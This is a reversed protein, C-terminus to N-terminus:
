RCSPGIVLDKNTESLPLCKCDVPTVAQLWGTNPEQTGAGKGWFTWWSVVGGHLPVRLTPYELLVLLKYSRLSSLKLTLALFCFAVHARRVNVDVKSPVQQSLMTSCQNDFFHGDIIRRSIKPERRALTQDWAHGHRANCPWGDGVHPSGSIALCRTETRILLRQWTEGELAM